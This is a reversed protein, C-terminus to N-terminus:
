LVVYIGVSNVGARIKPPLENGNVRERWMLLNRFYQRLTSAQPQHERSARSQDVLWKFFTTFYTAFKEWRKKLAELGKTTTASLPKARPGTQEQQQRFRQYDFDTSIAAANVDRPQSPNTYSDAM